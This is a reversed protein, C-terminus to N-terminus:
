PFSGAHRYVRKGHESLANMEDESLARWDKLISLDEDLETRDDPAMIAVSINPNQLAWRYWMPAHPVSFGSPDEPTSRLLAGWRLCTYAVVPFRRLETVPFIDREAGTHAANYRIMLLDVAGREVLSAALKRQHSTVGIMRVRGDERASQLVSFAGDKGTIQEWQEISEMWYFTPVDIYDTRLENLAFDLERQMEDHTLASLQVAVVVNKRKDGLERIAASMADPRGCWNLYNIGADIAHRIDFTTLQTDGRTALGLRCVPPLDFGLSIHRAPTEV